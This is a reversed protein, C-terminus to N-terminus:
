GLVTGLNATVTEAVPGATDLVAGPLTQVEEVPAVPEPAGGTTDTTDTGVQAMRKEFQPPPVVPDGQPAEPDKRPPDADPSPSTTSATCRPDRSRRGADRGPAGRWGHRREGTGAGM